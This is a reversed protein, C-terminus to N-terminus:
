PRSRARGVWKVATQVPVFEIRSSAKAFVGSTREDDTALLFGVLKGEGPMNSEKKTM